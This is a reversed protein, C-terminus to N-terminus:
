NIPQPRKNKGTLECGIALELFDATGGNTKVACAIYPNFAHLQMPCGKLLYFKYGIKNSTWQHLLGHKPLDWVKNLKEMFPNYINIGAQLFVAFRGYNWEYGAFLVLTQAKKKADGASAFLEELIIYDHYAEYYHYNLGMSLKGKSNFGHTAYISAGYVVYKPGSVPRVTGSFEQIGMMVAAAPYWKPYFAPMRKKPSSHDLLEPKNCFSIGATFAPINAGINPVAIHADSCHTYSLGINFRLKKTLPRSMELRLMSMNTFRSGIVLNKPNEDSYPKNFGAIGMGARWSWRTKGKWKEFRMIPIIGLAQGIVDQNGFQAHILSVGVAPLGYDIQWQQRGQTKWILNLETLSSVDSPPNEGHIKILHGVHLDLGAQFVPSMLSDQSHGSTAQICVLITLLLKNFLRRM